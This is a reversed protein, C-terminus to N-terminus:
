NNNLIKTKTKNNLNLIYESTFLFGKTPVIVIMNFEYVESITYIKDEKSFHYSINNQHKPTNGENPTKHERRSKFQSGNLIQYAYIKAIYKSSVFFFFVM